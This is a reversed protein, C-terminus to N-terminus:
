DAADPHKRNLFLFKGECYFAGVIRAGNDLLAREMVPIEPGEPSASTGFIAVKRGRFDNREIFEM